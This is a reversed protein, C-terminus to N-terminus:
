PWPTGEAELEGALGSSDLRDLVHAHLQEYDVREATFHVGVWRPARDGAREEPLSETTIATDAFAETLRRLVRESDTPHRLLRRYRATM